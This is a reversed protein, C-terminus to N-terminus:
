VISVQVSRGNGNGNGNSNDSDNNNGSGNSSMSSQSYSCIPGLKYDKVWHNSSGCRICKGEDRWKLQKGKTVAKISTVKLHPEWEMSGGNAYSGGFQNGMTQLIQVFDNYVLPLSVQGNIWQRTYKNLSGVLTTIRTDDLWKDVGAEFM